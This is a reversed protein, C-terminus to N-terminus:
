DTDLTEAWTSGIVWMDYPTPATASPPLEASMVLPIEMNASGKAMNLSVAQTQLAQYIVILFDATLSEWLLQARVEQGVLPPTLKAAATASPPGGSVQPTDANLSLRLNTLNVTMLSFTLDATQATAVIKHPYYYEASEVNAVTIGTKFVSGSKTIGLPLWAASGPVDGSVLGQTFQSGSGTPAFASTITGVPAAWLKGAGLRIRDSHATPVVTTTPM